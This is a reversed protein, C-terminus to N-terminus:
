NPEEEKRNTTTTCRKVSTNKTESSNKLTLPPAFICLVNMEEIEVSQVLSLILHVRYFFSSPLLHKVIGRGM